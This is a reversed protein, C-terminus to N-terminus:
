SEAPVGGLIGSYWVEGLPADGLIEDIDPRDSLREFRAEQGVKQAIVIEEPHDRFLDLFYPSHTTAIVQVPHRSEGFHEPYCLRYLADRVERLLRPHIGRDPEEFGVIPPPDPVYALTLIALALLTGQSLDAAPIPHHGERTRLLFARMGESPTDFLIRDFEPLWRGLEANLAEFREPDHDRLQDLVIVLNTGNSQLKANPQLNRPAAIANADLAYVSVRVLKEELLKWVDQPLASQRRKRNRSSGSSTARFVTAAGEYPNGWQLIVEVTEKPPLGATAVGGFSFHKPDAAAQLATSKGSGNPGVLLTFRSLHLTTDRLVKFNRFQVSEIM